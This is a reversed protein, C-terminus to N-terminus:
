LYNIFLKAVPFIMKDEISHLSFKNVVDKGTENYFRILKVLEQIDQKIKDM